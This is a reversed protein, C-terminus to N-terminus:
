SQEITVISASGVQRRNNLAELTIQCALCVNKFKHLVNM